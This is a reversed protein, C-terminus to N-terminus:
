KKHGSRWYESRKAMWDRYTESNVPFGVLRHKRDAPDFYMVAIYDRALQDPTLPYIMERDWQGFYVDYTKGVSASGSRVELIQLRVFSKDRSRQTPSVGSQDRKGLWVPIDLSRVRVIATEQAGNPMHAADFDAPLEDLFYALPASSNAVMQVLGEQHPIDSSSPGRDCSPGLCAIAAARCAQGCSKAETVSVLFFLAFFACARNQWKSHAASRLGLRCGNAMFFESTFRADFAVRSTTAYCSILLCSRDRVTLCPNYSQLKLTTRSNHTYSRLCTPQLRAQVLLYGASSIERGIRAGRM